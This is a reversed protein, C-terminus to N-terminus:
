YLVAAEGREKIRRAFHDVILQRRAVVASIEGGNLYNKVAREIEERTLTQLREYLKRDCQQLFEPNRIEPQLRFGRSFDIMIVRWDKTYVVNGKNRDVDRVLEAFVLMNQRERVFALANPPQIKKTEREFEDMLVNDIWWTLSGIQGRHRREVTVPMMHDLALLKALEYAAINYMYSDAFQVEGARKRGLRIDEATARMEISQFAADHTLTGDSLTLRLAGTVGKGIPRADTIKANLLFERQQETTLPPASQAAAVQAAVLVLFGALAVTQKLTRVRANHRPIVSDSLTHDTTM